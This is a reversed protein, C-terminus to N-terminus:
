VARDVPVAAQNELDTDVKGAAAFKLIRKLCVPDTVWYRISSTTIVPVPDAGVRVAATKPLAREVVVPVAEVPTEKVAAPDLKLPLM